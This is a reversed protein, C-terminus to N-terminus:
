DARLEYRLQMAQDQESFRREVERFGRKGYFRRAPRNAEFVDLTLPRLGRELAAAFLAAGIGQGQLPPDVFFQDIHTGKMAIYGAVLGRHEAVQAWDWEAVKGSYWERLEALSCDWNMFRYAVRCAALHIASVADLDASRLPRLQMM